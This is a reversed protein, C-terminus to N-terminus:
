SLLDIEGSALERAENLTIVAVVGAALPDAWWWGLWADLGLALLIGAALLGDIAAMRANAILPRNGLALGTRRKAWAFVFMIVVTAALFVMGLPSTRAETRSLLGHISDGVLYLGLLGFAIALLRMARRARRPDNTEDDGRLHWLVVLSAFVEITSDLGFAVLALSSAMLGTVISITAELVNWSTTAYEWRRGTRELREVEAPPLGDTTM